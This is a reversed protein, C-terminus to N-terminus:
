APAVQDFDIAITNQAVVTLDARSGLADAASAPAHVFLVGASGGYVDYGDAILAEALETSTTGAAPKVQYQVM